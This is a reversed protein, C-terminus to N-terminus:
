DVEIQAEMYLVCDGSIVVRDGNDECYFDGGRESAQHGMLQSKGLRAAWYPTLTCHASGTAPDEDVGFSPAFFRSVFDVHDGPATIIVGHPHCDRIRALNPRICRLLTETEFVALYNSADYTETPRAGLAEELLDAADCPVPPISPFDLALRDGHRFVELRGSLPSEFRVRDDHGRDLHELLLYGSALTAHGCLEIEATPTFWRIEYHGDGAVLFATESLNNEAAISQMLEDALWNELPCVAAPNGAFLRSTFADIQYLPIRM